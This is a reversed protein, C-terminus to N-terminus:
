IVKKSDIAELKAALENDNIMVFSSSLVASNESNVNKFNVMVTSNKTTDPKPTKTTDTTQAQIATFAFLSMGFFLAKSKISKM